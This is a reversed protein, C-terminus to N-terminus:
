GIRDNDGSGQHRSRWDPPEWVVVGGAIMGMAQIVARNDFDPLSTQLEHLMEKAGVADNPYICGGKGPCGALIWFPVPLFCDQITIAVMVLDDWRVAERRKNGRTVTVGQSDFQVVYSSVYPASHARRFSLNKRPLVAILATLVAGGALAECDGRKAGSRMAIILGVLAFAAGLASLIRISYRDLFKLM